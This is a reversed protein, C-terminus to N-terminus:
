IKQGKVSGLVMSDSGIPNKAIKFPDTSNVKVLTIPQM